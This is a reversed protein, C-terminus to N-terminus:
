PCKEAIASFHGCFIIKIYLLLIFFDVIAFITREASATPPTIVIAAIAWIGQLDKLHEPYIFFSVFRLANISGEFSHFFLVDDLYNLLHIVFCCDGNGSIAFLPQNFVTYVIHFNFVSFIPHYIAFLKKQCEPFAFFLWLLTSFSILLNQSKDDASFSTRRGKGQRSSISKTDSINLIRFCIM